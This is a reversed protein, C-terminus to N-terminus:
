FKSIRYLYVYRRAKDNLNFLYKYFSVNLRNYTHQALFLDNRGLEPNYRKDHVVQTHYPIPTGHQIVDGVKLTNYIYSFNLLADEVTYAYVRYARNRGMGNENAWHRRFYRASRWTIAIKKLQRFDTTNCFWSNFDDWNAGVEKMGGAKLVQSIFNACDDNKFYPYEKTNPNLAYKEVYEKAATRNYDLNLDRM